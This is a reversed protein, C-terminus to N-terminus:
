DRIQLIRWWVVARGDRVPTRVHPQIRLNLTFCWTLTMELPSEVSPTRERTIMAPSEFVPCLPIFYRGLLTQRCRNGSRTICLTIGRVELSNRPSSLAVADRPETGAEDPVARPGTETARPAAGPPGARRQSIVRVSRAEAATAPSATM